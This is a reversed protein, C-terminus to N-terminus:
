SKPKEFMAPDVKPNVEFETIVGTAAPQGNVTAQIKKPVVLGGVTQWETYDTVQEGGSGAEATRLLRGSDPHLYWRTSIGEGTIQLVDANVAGVKESASPTFTLSRNDVQQLIYLFSSRAEQMLADKQSAPLDQNGMPSQMFGVAPTAIMTMVGMPTNMVQRIRDPFVMVIEQGMKMAGQPTTVDLDAKTKVSKVAALRAKGGHAEAAKRILARGKEGDKASPAPQTAASGPARSPISIDVNTVAGFGALPRDFDASKGVVLMAVRDPHIHAKAARTVEAATVKEVGTRYRATFDAPYGYFALLMQENLVEEKTDFRFIFSNLISDKATKMEETTVAGNIISNIEERLADVSAATTESKTGMSLTFMGPYDWGAGIGGGVNYALGKTSRINSFLRASFGGGLIENLLQVAYYDPHDRRIGPHVLRIYSQNVDDKPIFFVGQRPQPDPLKPPPMQPGRAWSAFAKRLKAEMSAADFDGSVGVIVNNPHVTRSHWERLDQQNVAAITYYEVNRAYPSDVGYVLRSAERDAIADADDNRRAIGTSIQSKALSIKEERFAPDRLLEQVVGFVPDFDQKLCNFSVTTSDVDGATEVSAARAELFDDLQDGTRAKTGGTRWVESYVSVLGAKASPEERSGGRIVASGSILPLERDEQLFIILGNPLDIRKPQQIKFERLPPRPVKRWDVPQALAAASVLLVAGAVRGFRKGSATIARM